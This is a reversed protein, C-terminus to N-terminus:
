NQLYDVLQSGPLLKLLDIGAPNHAVLPTLGSKVIKNAAPSM